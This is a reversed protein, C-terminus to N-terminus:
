VAKRNQFTNRSILGLDMLRYRAAVDSVRFTGATLLIMDNMDDRTVPAPRDSFLATVADRPMLLCSATKNAQYEILEERSMRGLTEREPCVGVDEHGCKVCDGRRLSRSHAIFYMRHWLAHGAEHALTFRLRSSRGLKTLEQEIFIDGNEAHVYEARRGTESYVPMRDTTRFVAAGLLSSDSSLSAYRINLNLMKRIFQEINVPHPSTFISKDFRRVMDNCMSDIYSDSLYPVCASDTEFFM